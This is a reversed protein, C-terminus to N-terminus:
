PILEVPASVKAKAPKTYSPQKQLISQANNAQSPQKPAVPIPIPKPTSIAENMKEISLNNQGNQSPQSDEDGVLRATVVLLLERRSKGKEEKKFLWGIVPLNSLYPISDVKKTDEENLLGAVAWTEGDSTETITNVTRTKFGPISSSNSVPAAVTYDPESLTQDLVISIKGNELITPRVVIGLGYQLFTLTQQTNQTVGNNAFTTTDQTLVPITGGVNFTASEGSLATLLPETLTQGSGNSQIWRIFTSLNIGFGKLPDFHSIRFSNLASELNEGTNADILGPLSLKNQGFLSTLRVSTSKGNKTSNTALSWDIGFEETKNRDVGVIRMQIEIRPNSDVRITSMVRGNAAMVVDGRAINQALNGKANGLTLATVNQTGIAGGSNGRGGAAGGGGVGGGVGGAGAGAGNGRGRGRNGQGGAGGPLVPNAIEEEDTNGALVGGQDSVVSFDPLINGGAVFRDATSLVRALAAPTKVQGKLMMVGNVEEVTIRKDIQALLTELRQAPPMLATESLILNIIRIQSTLTKTQGTKSSSISRDPNRAREISAAAIANQRAINAKKENIKNSRNQAVVDGISGDFDDDIKSLYDNAEKLYKLSQNQFRNFQNGTEDSSITISNESDGFFRYASEEAANVLSVNAAVGTLIIADSNLDTKADIRSDIKKLHERLLSLDHTVHIKYEYQEGSKGILSLSTNGFTTGNILLTEPNLVVVRAIAPNGIIMTKIKEPVAVTKSNNKIVEITQINALAINSLMSTLVFAILKLCAIKFHKQIMFIFRSIQVLRLLKIM